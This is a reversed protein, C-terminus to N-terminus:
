PCRLLLFRELDCLSHSQYRGVFLHLARTPTIARLKLSFSFLLLIALAPQM